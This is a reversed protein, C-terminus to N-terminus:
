HCGVGLPDPISASADLPEPSSLQSCPSSIPPQHQHPPPEPSWHHTMASGTLRCGRNLTAKKKKEMGRTGGAAAASVTTNFYEFILSTLNLSNWRRTAYHNHILCWLTPNWDNAHGTKRRREFEQMHSKFSFFSLFWVKSSCLSHTTSISHYTVNM